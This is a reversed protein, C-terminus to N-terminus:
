SRSQRHRSDCRNSIANEICRGVRCGFGRRAWQVAALAGSFGPWRRKLGLCGPVPACPKEAGNRASKAPLPAPRGANSPPLRSAPRARPKEAGNRANKAPLPAPAGAVATHLTAAALLLRGRARGALRRGGEPRQVGGHAGTGPQRPREGAASAPSKPREEQWQLKRPRPPAKAPANSPADTQAKQESRSTHM